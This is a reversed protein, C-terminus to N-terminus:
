FIVILYNHPLHNDVKLHPILEDPIHLNSNELTETNRAPGIQSEEPNQEM